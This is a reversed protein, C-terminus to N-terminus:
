ILPALRSFPSRCTSRIRTTGSAIFGRAIGMVVALFTTRSALAALIAAHSQLRCIRNLLAGTQPASENTRTCQPFRIGIRRRCTPSGRSSGCFVSRRQQGVAITRCTGTGRGVEGPGAGLDSLAFALCEM